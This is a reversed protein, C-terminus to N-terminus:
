AKKYMKFWYFGFIAAVVAFIIDTWMATLGSIFSAIVGSFAFGICMGFFAGMLTAVNTKEFKRESPEKKILESKSKKKGKLNISIGMTIFIPIIININVPIKDIVNIAENMTIGNEM